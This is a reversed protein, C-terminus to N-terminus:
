NVQYGIDKRFHKGEFSVNECLEYARKKADQMSEGVGVCVLIRGGDAIFKDNELSVGAYFIHSNEPVSSVRIESKPSAKFPYNAGACVVGVAFEDKLDLKFSDLRKESAAMFLELPNNILPMLVECEPDGFRVNFELVFPNNEVVMLGVFLVGCFPNNEEKMGKLTPAVIESKVRELLEKSALSSPAYAGMGGTNPGEDNDYLRKHDQAAPLLVFNEGDCLAFISLEFGDLFEEIVIKRGAAGFSEGSLMKAAEQVAEEKSKAIIVGKGACLGDAKVVIPPTLRSIFEKAEELDSTNIFKATKIKHRQLFEKMFAKSSELMAANKTPGFIKLNLALFEDVVGQELFAESGVICLEVSENKAYLALEKMDKIDVNKGLKASAGNGPVFIFELDKKEKKLALAISYERAGAGLIMIKM